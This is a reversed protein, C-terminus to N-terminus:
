LILNRFMDSTYNAKVIAQMMLMNETNESIGKDLDTKVKKGVSTALKKALASSGPLQNNFNNKYEEIVSVLNKM